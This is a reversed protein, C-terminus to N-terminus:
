LPRALFEVVFPLHPFEKTGTSAFGRRIYWDRLDTHSAIIALEARTLGLDRLVQLAHELLQNGCGGRRFEPLVALREIEGARDDSRRIAVCGAPNPGIELVFYQKGQILDRTIWEATCNSPHRPCNDPTLRFREAVGRFSRRILAALVDAENATATRITRDM